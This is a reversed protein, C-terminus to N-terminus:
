LATEDRKIEFENIHDVVAKVGKLIKKEKEPSRFGLNWM